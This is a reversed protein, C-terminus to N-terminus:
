FLKMLVVAVAVTDIVTATAALIGIFLTPLIETTVLQRM